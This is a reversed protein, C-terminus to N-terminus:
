IWSISVYGDGGDGGPGTLSTGVSPDQGSGGAGGAGPGPKTPKVGTVNSNAGNSMGSAGGGAGPTVFDPSFVPAPAVGGIFCSGQANGGNGSAVATAALGGAGGTGGVIVDMRSITTGGSSGSQGSGNSVRGDPGAIGAISIAWNGSAASSGAAGASDRNGSGGPGGSGASSGGAGSGANAALTNGSGGGGGGGYAYIFKGNISVYSTGGAAGNTGISAVVGGAGGAGVTVLVTDTSNIPVTLCRYLGAGGGGGGSSNTNQTGSGGGGGGAGQIQLILAAAAAPVSYVTDTQATTYETTNSGSATSAITISGAGNTVSIGTGGTITAAVPSTGTSGILLQGDSLSTSVLNKNADARVIANSTLGSVTIGNIGLNGNSLQSSGYYIIYSGSPITQSPTVTLSTASIFATIFSVMGNQFVIFGGVMDSTFTTGVGTAVTTTQSITGTNYKQSYLITYTTSLVTQSPFVTLSTGSTFATILAQSGTSYTIIGGVMDSTWTTGSGTVTTGSQSATGVTYSSGASASWGNNKFNIPNEINQIGNSMIFSSNSGADPLTYVRSSLPASANLTTTNTTGLTLQNSTATLTESIFSPNSSSTGEVISGANSIMLKNNTLASSSNTGGNAIPLIGSVESTLDVSDALLTGSTPLTLSTSGVTTLAIAHGGSTSFDNSLSLNGNLELTRDGNGVDVTLTRDATLIPASTSVLNLTNVSSTDSISLVADTIIPGTLTKNTLTQSATTTVLTGSTPLTVNTTGTTTLTLPNAGITTFNNAISVVGGLTVNGAMSLTRNNDNINISLTKNTTLASNSAIILNNSVNDNISFGTLGTVTGGSWTSNTINKNLVNQSANSIVFNGNVGALDPINVNVAGVTQSSVTVTTDFSGSELGISAVGTINNSDDVAIGSGQITNSNNNDWRTLTNDVTSGVRTVSFGNTALNVPTGASDPIWWLGDSGTLKYLKGQGDSPNTPASIDSLQIYSDLLLVNEVSVGAGGTAENINNVEILNNYINGTSLNTEGNFFSM